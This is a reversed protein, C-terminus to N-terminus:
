AAIRLPQAAFETAAGPLPTMHAFLNRLVADWAQATAENWTDTHTAPDGHAERISAYLATRAIGMQPSSLQLRGFFARGFDLVEACADDNGLNKAIHSVCSAFTHRSPRSSLPNFHCGGPIQAGLRAFFGRTISDFSPAIAAIDSRVIQIQEGTPCASAANLTLM